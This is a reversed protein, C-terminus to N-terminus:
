VSRNKTVWQGFHVCHNELRNVTKMLPFYKGKQLEITELDEYFVDSLTEFELRKSSLTAPSYYFQTIWSFGFENDADNPITYNVSLCGTSYEVFTFPYIFLWWGTSCTQLIWGDGQNMGIDDLNTVEALTPHVVNDGKRIHLLDAQIEMMWLWSGTSKGEVIHSFELNTEKALDDVWYHDPEVFDKFVLGSRGVQAQGCGINRDNNLPVGSKDWEFGHFKCVINDIYEGPGALPYMRHPCYRNFLNVQNVGRNLIYEPTVFNSDTIVSKHALIKPPKNFIM